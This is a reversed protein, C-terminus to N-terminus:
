RAALRARGHGAEIDNEGRVPGLRARLRAWREPSVRVDNRAELELAGLAEDDRLPAGLFGALARLVVAPERVLDEYALRLCRGPLAAFSSELQATIDQVQRAVQEEPDLGAWTRYERPRVSWWQGEDGYRAKRAQLISQACYALEREIWVFRSGPLLGALWPVHYSVHNLNKLVLPRQWWGGLAELERGLITWDIADLERDSLHDSEAFPAWYRWFWSFEHPAHLGEAVGLHSDVVGGLRAGAFRRRWEISGHLPVMWYRAVFNSVYGVDLHRAMLQHLLTTGSRPVGVIFCLAAGPRRYRAVLRRERPRLLANRALLLFDPALSRRQSPLRRANDDYAARFFPVLRM